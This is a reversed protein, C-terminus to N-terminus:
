ARLRGTADLHDLLAADVTDQFRTVASLDDAYRYSEECSIWRDAVEPLYGERVTGVQWGPKGVTEWCSYLTGDANVVAGYRGDRFSCAQCPTVVGPRAVTFGLDVARRQWRIFRAAMETSFALDNRYGIGVDGVRAFYLACRGPDLAAALREILADIGQHNHHSVNVRINWRLPAIRPGPTGGSAGGPTDGMGETAATAEAMARVIDDFTGGGTRRVRIRDHDRRDGDFTVQVDRLGLRVLDRALRPTLLTGNSTMSAWRLGLPAARELLELCGAPNLLPEGGFLMLVLRDLGAAAQRRATFDVIATITESTLRSYGIRPPRNGGSPDQDVNQFCYACGLNCHTSTLVTLSYSRYAPRAFLGQERLAREAAPRLTHESTLHERRLRAIGGAGLFWWCREGRIVRPPAEAGRHRGRNMAGDMAPKEVPGTNVDTNVDNVDNM